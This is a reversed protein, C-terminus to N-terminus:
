RKFLNLIFRLPKTIQWSKSSYILNLEEKYTKHLKILEEKYTKHLEKVLYENRQWDKLLEVYNEATLLDFSKKFMDMIKEERLKRNNYNQSSITNINIGDENTFINHECTFVSIHHPKTHRALRQFMDWDIYFKLSPDYIGAKDLLSREHVVNIHSIAMLTLETVLGRHLKQRSVEIHKNDKTVLINIEHADTHVFKSGNAKLYSICEMLHNPYWIDDDDQYAIYKSNGKEVAFNLAAAKGVHPIEYYYIRSDKLSKVLSLVDCDNGDQILYLFWNTYHQNIISRIARELLDLNPHYTPLIIDVFEENM